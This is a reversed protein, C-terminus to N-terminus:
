LFIVKKGMWGMCRVVRDERGMIHDCRLSAVQESENEHGYMYVTLSHTEVVSWGQGSMGNTQNKKEQDTV